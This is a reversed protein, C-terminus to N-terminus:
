PLYRERTLKLQASPNGEACACSKSRPPSTTARGSAPTAARLLRRDLHPLAPKAAPGIRSLALLTENRIIRSDFSLLEILVPMAADGHGLGCLRRGGAAVLRAHVASTGLQVSDRGLWHAAHLQPHLSVTLRTGDPQHRFGRQRPFRARCVVHRATRRDPGLFAGGQMSGPTEVGALSLM